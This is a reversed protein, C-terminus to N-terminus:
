EESPFHSSTFELRQEIKRRLWSKLARRTSPILCVFGCGDTILGPTLLLLGGVLIIAGDLLADAPLLGAALEERMRRIAGLGQSKALAAGLVGTAVVGALTAGVGIRTGIEILLALELLPTLTFLLILKILM